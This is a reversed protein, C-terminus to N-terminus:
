RTARRSKTAQGRQPEGQFKICWSHNDKAFREGLKLRPHPNSTDVRYGRGEYKIKWAPNWKSGLTERDAPYAVKDVLSASPFVSVAECYTIYNMVLTSHYTYIIHHIPHQSVAIIQVKMAPTYHNLPGRTPREFDFINIIGDKGGGSCFQRSSTMSLVDTLMPYNEQPHPLREVPTYGNSQLFRSLATVGGVRTVIDLDSKPSPPLRSMFRLAQSGGVVAGAFALVARFSAPDGFWVGLFRNINWRAQVYLTVIELVRTSTRRLCLVGPLPLSDLFLNRMRHSSSLLFREMPSLAPM